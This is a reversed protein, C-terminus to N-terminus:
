WDHNMLVVAIVACRSCQLGKNVQAYVKQDVQETRLMCCVVYLLCV